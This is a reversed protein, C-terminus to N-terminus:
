FRGLDPHDIRFVAQEKGDDTGVRGGLVGDGGFASSVSVEALVVTDPDQDVGKVIM